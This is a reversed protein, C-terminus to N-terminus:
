HKRSVAIRGSIETLRRLGHTAARDGFLEGRARWGWNGAADGPTNMRTDSGLSFLDQLPVIALRAISAHAARIMQWAIEGASAGLFTLAREREHQSASEFWGRTTDNDHTGTYLVTQEECHHPLHINDDNGFAFQLVRMGPAKIAKRLADVDPTITGLDEAILPLAGLAKEIANFLDLGPGEVWRGNRATEEHAPVECYGAFGRFHDLRVLDTLRLNAKIREVWWAYGHQKMVDWRYLPNGWRQGDASFYDPPVGAVGIPRLDADLHFLEPHSWTDAGDLAVYIPLDGLIQIGLGKAAERLERWQTFFLFQVFAHYEVDKQHESRARNLAEAERRVLAPEWSTWEAGGSKEKLTMFLAFDELWYRQDPHQRFEEFQKQLTPEASSRFHDHAARLLASKFRTVADFDVRESPFSPAAELVKAPLFRDRVLRQPSILLPNGAFASLAGYPSNGFGTPGLPLIQWVTQGAGALWQLFRHAEDGLDGIGFPGPLSSPHLLIGARRDSLM